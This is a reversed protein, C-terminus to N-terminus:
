IKRWARLYKKASGRTAYEILDPEAPMYLFADSQKM